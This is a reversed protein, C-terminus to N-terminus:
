FDDFEEDDDIDDRIARPALYYVLSSNGLKDFGMAVKM